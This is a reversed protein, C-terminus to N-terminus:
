GAYARSARRGGAARDLRGNLVRQAELAAVACSRHLLHAHQLTEDDVRAGAAELEAAAALVGDLAASAAVADAASFADRAAALAGLLRDAAARARPAHRPAPRPQSPSRSPM